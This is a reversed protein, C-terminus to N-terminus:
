LWANMNRKTPRPCIKNSFCIYREKITGSGHWSVLTDSTGLTKSRLNALLKKLKVLEDGYDGILMIDDVYVILIAKKNKPSSKIFLTHDAQCQSSGNQVMTKTFRDFWARPSQKLGYLLKKLKCVKNYNSSTELGPPIEMYVEEKL